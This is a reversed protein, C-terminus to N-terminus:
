YNYGRNLQYGKAHTRAYCEDAWHSTRGCRYCAGVQGQPQGQGQQYQPQPQQQQRQPLFPPPQQQQQPPPPPPCMRRMQDSTAGVPNGRNWQGTFVFGDRATFTALGHPFHDYFEGVISDGSPFIAKGMGHNKNLKWEGTYVGGDAGSYTGFGSRVDDVWDGQYVGGARPEMDYVMKGKGHRLSSVLEGKYMGGYEGAFAKENFLLFNTSSPSSASSPSSPPFSSYSAAVGSKQGGAGAGVTSTASRPPESSSSPSDLPTTSISVVPIQEDTSNFPRGEEGEVKQLPAPSSLTAPSPCLPLSHGSTSNSFLLEAFERKELFGRSCAELGLSRVAQKLEQVPMAALCALSVPATACSEGGSAGSSSDLRSSTSASASATATTTTTTTTAAASVPADIDLFCDFADCFISASPRLAPDQEWALGVLEHLKQEEDAGSVPSLSAESAGGAASSSEEGGAVDAVLPPPQWM